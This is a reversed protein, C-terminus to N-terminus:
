LPSCASPLPSLHHSAISAFFFQRCPSAGTTGPSPTLSLGSPADGKSPSMQQDQPFRIALVRGVIDIHSDSSTPNTYDAALLQEISRMYQRHVQRYTPREELVLAAFRRAAALLNPHSQCDSFSGSSQDSPEQCNSPPPEYLCWATPAHVKGTLQVQGNFINVWVRHLRLICGMYADPLQDSKPAFLVVTISEACTGDQITLSVKWDTGRTRAPASCDVAVGYVNAVKQLPPSLDALATYVYNSSATDGGGSRSM